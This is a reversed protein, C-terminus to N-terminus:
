HLWSAQDECEAPKRDAGHRLGGYLHSQLRRCREVQLAHMEKVPLADGIVHLVGSQYRSITSTLVSELVSMGSSSGQYFHRTLALFQPEFVRTAMQRPTPAESIHPGLTQCYPLVVGWFGILMLPSTM